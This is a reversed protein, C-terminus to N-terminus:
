GVGKRPFTPMLAPLTRVVWPHALDTSPREFKNTAAEGGVKKKLDKEQEKKKKKKGQPWVMTNNVMITFAYSSRKEM